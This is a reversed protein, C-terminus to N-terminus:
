YMTDLLNFITAIIVAKGLHVPFTREKKKKGCMGM